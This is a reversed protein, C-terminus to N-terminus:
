GANDMESAGLCELDEFDHIVNDDSNGNQVCDDESVSHPSSLDDFKTTTQGCTMISQSDLGNEACNTNASVSNFAEPLIMILSVGFCIGLVVTSRKTNM